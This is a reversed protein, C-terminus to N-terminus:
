AEGETESIFELPTVLKIRDSRYKLLRIDTSIFYECGAYIASAVHFADKEKVGTKMIEEAMPAIIDDREVGVYAKMNNELFQIIAKKRMEFPNRSIEYDLTYSGILDAKGSRILDQIHLKAQAELAVKIQTQDDYPRNYCCMDLYVRVIM